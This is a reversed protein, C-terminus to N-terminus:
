EAGKPSKLYGKPISYSIDDSLFCVGDDRSSRIVFRFPTTPFDGNLRIGPLTMVFQQPKGQQLLFVDKNKSNKSYDVDTRVWHNKKDLQFHFVNSM